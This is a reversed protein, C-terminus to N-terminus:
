LAYGYRILHKLEMEIEKDEEKLEQLEELEIPLQKKGQEAKRNVLQLYV